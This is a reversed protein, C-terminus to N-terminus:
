CPGEGEYTIVPEGVGAIIGVVKADDTLDGAPLVFSLFGQATDLVAVWQRYHSQRPSKLAAGYARKLEAWSSGVGVGDATTAAASFSLLLRIEDANWDYDLRVHDFKPRMWLTSTCTGEQRREALNTRLAEEASMGARLSGFGGPVFAPVRNSSEAGEGGESARPVVSLVPDAVGMDAAFEGLLSGVQAAAMFLLVRRAWVAANAVTSPSVSPASKSLFGILADKTEDYSGLLCRYAAVSTGLADSSSSFDHLCQNTHAMISLAALGRSADGKVLNFIQWALGSFMLTPKREVQLLPHGGVSRVQEETFGFHLQTGPALFASGGFDNGLWDSVEAPHTLAMLAANEPGVDFIPSAWVWAPQVAPRVGFGYARNAAVKVVLVNRNNPDAGDCWRVMANPDEFYDVSRVWRPAAPGSCDPPDFRAGNLHGVTAYVDDWISLHDVRATLTRRDKSLSTPVPVWERAEEDLYALAASQDAPLPEMLQRRLVIGDAPMAEGDALELEVPGLAGPNMGPPTEADPMSAAREVVLDPGDGATSWSAVSPPQDRAPRDSGRDEESPSCAGLFFAVLALSLVQTFHRHAIVPAASPVPPRTSLQFM